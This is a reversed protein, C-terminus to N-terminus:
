KFYLAHAKEAASIAEVLLNEFWARDTPKSRENYSAVVARAHQEVTMEGIARANAIENVIDSGYRKKIQARLEEYRVKFRSASQPDLKILEEAQILPGVIDGLETLKRLWTKSAIWGLLRFVM